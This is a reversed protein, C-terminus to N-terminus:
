KLWRLLTNVIPLVYILVIRCVRASLILQVVKAFVTPSIVPLHLRNILDPEFPNGTILKRLKSPPTVHSPLGTYPLCQGNSQNHTERARRLHTEHQKVPTRNAWLDNILPSDVRQMKRPTGWRGQEM